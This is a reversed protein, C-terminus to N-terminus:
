NGPSQGRKKGLDRGTARFRLSAIARRVRALASGEDGIMGEDNAVELNQADREWQELIALRQARSLGPERLVDNPEEFESAPDFQAKALDLNRVSTAM